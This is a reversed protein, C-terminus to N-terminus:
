DMDLGYKADTAEEATEETAEAAPEEAPEEKSGCAIMSLALVTCLLASLIRKKM